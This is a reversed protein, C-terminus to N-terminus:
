ETGPEQQNASLNVNNNTYLEVDTLGGNEMVQALDLDSRFRVDINTGFVKNFETCFQKRSTLPSQRLSETEGMNVNIEEAVQREAKESTNSEIGLYTLAEQWVQKKIIQLKDAIFPANIELVKIPSDSVGNAIGFFKSTFIAPEFDDVKKFANLVSLKQNEACSVLYPTKQVNVNVDITRDIKTLKRAFYLIQPFDPCRSFNTYLLASNPKESGKIGQLNNYPLLGPYTYGNYGYAIVQAPYGYLNLMGNNTCPLVLYSDLNVDKYGVMLGNFFLTEEIFKENVTDPLNLWQFRSVAINYFRALWASYTRGTFERANEEWPPCKGM